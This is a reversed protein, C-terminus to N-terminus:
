LYESLKDAENKINYGASTIEFSKNKRKIGRYKLIGDSWTSPPEEISIFHANETIGAESTISESLFCQLDATQAEVAVIPLGEYKSPLLFVDAAQMLDSVDNRMGLFMIKEFIGKERASAKVKEDMDGVGAYLLVSDPEKKLLSEFIDLLYLPNKQNTIRGVHLVALEDTLGLEKRKSSRREPSYIFDEVSIANNIVTVEGNDVAKDGFMYRGALFSCALRGDAFFNLPKVFLRHLKMNDDSANHSHVIIKRRLVFPVIMSYAAGANLINFYVTKYQRNEKLVKFFELLHGIPHSSKAPIRYIESGHALIEDEYATKEWDAIFDFRIKNPDSSRYINMIYSEIGGRNDTMGYVLVEKPLSDLYEFFSDTSTKGVRTHSRGLIKALIIYATRSICFLRATIRVKKDSYDYLNKMYRKAYLKKSFKVLEFFSFASCAQWMVSWIIRSIMWKKYYKSFEPVVKEIDSAREELLTLCSLRDVRFTAMASVERLIYFYLMRETFEIKRSVCFLRLLYDYDEYYKYGSAFYLNNKEVTERRVVLDCVTFKTPNAIFKKLMEFKSFVKFSGDPNDPIAYPLNERIRYLQFVFTDADSESIGNTLYEIYDETVYDDADVFTIYEGTANKIGTNRAASVGGNAQKILKVPYSKTGIKGNILEYSNDTSGDDVFVLEFDNSRQRDFSSFLNNLYKECNYVPIIISIM